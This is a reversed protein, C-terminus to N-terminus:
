DMGKRTTDAVSTSGGDPTDILHGPSMPMKRGTQGHRSDPGEYLKIMLQARNKVGYKEFMQALNKKVTIESLHLHSAIEM